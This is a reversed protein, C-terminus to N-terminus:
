TLARGEKKSSHMCVVTSAILITHIINYINAYPMNHM